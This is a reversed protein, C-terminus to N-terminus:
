SGFITIRLDRDSITMQLSWPLPRSLDLKKLLVMQPPRLARTKPSAGFRMKSFGGAPEGELVAPGGARGCDGAPEICSVSASDASQAFVSIMAVLFQHDTTCFSHLIHSGQPFLLFLPLFRRNPRPPAPSDGM